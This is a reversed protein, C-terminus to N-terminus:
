GLPDVAVPTTSGTGPKDGDYGARAGSAPTRQVTRGDLIVATPQDARSELWRLAARLDHVMQECCGATIWRQTPQDVAAWPPVNTLLMRWPAGARVIWRLAHVVDRLEHRRHPAAADMVTLSPAVFAWEDDTVDTPYPKRSPQTEM